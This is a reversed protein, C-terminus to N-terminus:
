YRREIIEAQTGDVGDYEPSTSVKFRICTLLGDGVMPKIIHSNLRIGFYNNEKFHFIVCKQPETNRLDPLGVTPGWFGGLQDVIVNDYHNKEQDSLTKWDRPLIQPTGDEISIEYFTTSRGGGGFQKAKQSINEEQVTYFEGDPELKIEIGPMGPDDKRDFDLLFVAEEFYAGSPPFIAYIHETNHNINKERAQQRWDDRNYDIGPVRNSKVELIIQTETTRGTQKGKSYIEYPTEGCATNGLLMAAVASCLMTKKIKRELSM